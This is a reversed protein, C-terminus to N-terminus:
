SGKKTIERPVCKNAAPLSGFAYRFGIVLEREVENHKATVFHRILLDQCGRYHIIVPNKVHNHLYSQIRKRLDGSRGFYIIPSRGKQYRIPKKVCIEYVGAKSPVQSLSKKNLRIPKSFLNSYRSSLRRKNYAPIDAYNRYNCITRISVDVGYLRKVVAQTEEDKMKYWQQRVIHEVICANIRKRSWFFDRLLYQAGDLSIWTNCLLRSLRSIDLYPLPYEELFAKLSVSALTKRDHTECFRKQLLLANGIVHHLFHNKTRIWNMCYKWKLESPEELLEFDLKVYEPSFFLFRGNERAVIGTIGQPVDSTIRKDIHRVKYFPAASTMTRFRDVYDLYKDISMELVNAFIIRAVTKRNIPASM